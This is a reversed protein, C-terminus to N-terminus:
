KAVTCPGMGDSLTTNVLEETFHSQGAPNAFAVKFFYTTFPILEDVTHVVVEHELINLDRAKLKKTTETTGGVIGYVVIYQVLPGNRLTAEPPAWTLDMSHKDINLISFNLPPSEPVTPSPSTPSVSFLMPSACACWPDPVFVSDHTEINRFVLHVTMCLHLLQALLHSILDCIFVYM